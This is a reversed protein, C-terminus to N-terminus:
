SHAPDDPERLSSFFIQPLRALPVQLLSGVDSRREAAFHPLCVQADTLIGPLRRIDVASDPPPQNM